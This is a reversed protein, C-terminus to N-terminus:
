TCQWIIHSIGLIAGKKVLLYCIKMKSNQLLLSWLFHLTLKQIFTCLSVASQCYSFAKQLNRLYTCMFANFVFLGTVTLQEPSGLCIHSFLVIGWIKDLNKRTNACFTINCFTIVRDDQVLSHKFLHNKKRLKKQNSLIFFHSIDGVPSLYHPHTYFTMISGTLNSLSKHVVPCYAKGLLHYHEM